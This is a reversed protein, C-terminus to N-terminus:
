CEVCDVAAYRASFFSPGREGENLFSLIHESLLPSVHLKLHNEGEYVEVYEYVLVCMAHQQWLVALTM